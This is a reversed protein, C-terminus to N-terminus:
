LRRGGPLTEGSVRFSQYAFFTQVAAGILGLFLGIQRDVDVGPLDVDYGLILKLLLLVTALAAVALVIFNWGFQLAPLQVGAFVRAAILTGAALCLLVPFWSLFGTDWASGSGGAFAAVQVQFWPFFSVVFVGLGAAMVGLDNTGVNRGGIVAM